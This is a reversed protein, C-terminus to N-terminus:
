EPSVTLDGILDTLIGMFEIELAPQSSEIQGRLDDTVKEVTRTRNAKLKVMYDGRNPETIFFGMELGTRRSYSEVEPTKRLLEEVGRLIRDSEALSSGPPTKYDLVFAGEDFEPLF